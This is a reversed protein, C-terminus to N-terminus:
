DILCAVEPDDTGITAIVGEIAPGVNMITVVLRGTEGTDPYGDHDGDLDRYVVSQISLTGQRFDAGAREALLVGCIASLIVARVAAHFM